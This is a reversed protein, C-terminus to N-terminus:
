RYYQETKFKPFDISQTAADSWNHIVTSDVPKGDYFAPIYKSALLRRKLADMCVSYLNDSLPIIEVSQLTGDAKVLEETLFWYDPAQNVCVSPWRGSISSAYQAGIYDTGYNSYDEGWNPFIRIYRNDGAKTFRVLYKIYVWEKKGEVQAPVMKANRFASRIATAFVAQSEGPTFCTQHRMHGRKGVWGRCRVLVSFDGDVDPFKIKKQLSKEGSGFRAPTFTPSGDASALRIGFISASLILLVLLSRM